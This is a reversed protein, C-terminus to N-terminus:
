YKKCNAGSATHETNKQEDADGTGERERGREREKVKKSRNYFCSVRYTTILCVYLVGFLMRLLCSSNMNALETQRDTQRDTQREKLTKDAENKKKKQVRINEEM